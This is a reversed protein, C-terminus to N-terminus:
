PFLSEAIDRIEAASEWPEFASMPILYMPAVGNTGVECRQADQKRICFRQGALHKAKPFEIIIVPSSFDVKRKHVLAVYEGYERYKDKYRPAWVPLHTCLHPQNIIM